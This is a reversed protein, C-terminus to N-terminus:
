WSGGAGNGGFSGGGFGGFGGGSRGGRGSGISSGRSFIAIMALTAFLGNKKVSWFFAFVILGLFLITIIMNTLSMEKKQRNKYDKYNYKKQALDMLITTASDLATYYQGKKFYPTMQNEVIEKCAMAPLVGTLGRGVGIYMKRGGDNKTPKILIVIGNDEKEQGVGWKEGIRAAYDWPAYKKLDDTIVIAIQNSTNKEFETLKKELKQQDEKKLFTPFKKSLNNVLKPPNPRKPLEQQGFLFSGLTLSYIFVLILSTTSIKIKNIM